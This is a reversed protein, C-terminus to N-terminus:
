CGRDKRSGWRRGLAAATGGGGQEVDIELLQGRAGIQDVILSSRAALFATGAAVARLAAQHPGGGCRQTELDVSHIDVPVIAVGIAEELAVVVVAGAATVDIDLEGAEAVVRERGGTKRLM